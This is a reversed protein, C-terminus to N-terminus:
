HTESHTLQLYYRGACEILALDYPGGPFHRGSALEFGDRIMVGDQRAVVQEVPPADPIGIAEPAASVSVAGCLLLMWLVLTNRSFRM